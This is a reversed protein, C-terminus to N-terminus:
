PAVPEPETMLAFFVASTEGPPQARFLGRAGISVVMSGALAWAFGEDCHFQGRWLASLGPQTVDPACVRRVLEVLEPRDREYAWSWAWTFTDTFYQGIVQVRSFLPPGDSQELRVIQRQPEFVFQTTKLRRDLRSQLDAFARETGGLLEFLSDTVLLADLHEKNLRTLWATTGDDRLLQFDAFDDTRHVTVMGPRWSKGRKELLEVLESVCESLRLAEAKADLYFDPKPKPNKSGEGRTQLESLRWGERTRAFRLEVTAWGAPALLMVSDHLGQVLPLLPEPM